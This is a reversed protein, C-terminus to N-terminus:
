EIMIKPELNLAGALTKLRTAAIEGVLHEHSKQVFLTLKKGGRKIRFADLNSAVGGSLAYGLRMAYGTAKALSRERINMLQNVTARSRNTSISKGYRSAVALAVFAREEHTIGVFPFRMVRALTHDVRYDPHELRGIESLLCAAVQLRERQPKNDPFIQDMWKALRFGDVGGFTVSWPMRDCVDILPDVKQDKSSLQDYLCGERVGNASFIIKRPQAIKIIRNMLLAAYPLVARRRNKIGDEELDAETMHSLDDTYYLAEEPSMEYHHLVHLPYNSHTIHLKALSRWAGGVVYFDKGKMRSLWKVNSLQADVFRAQEKVDGHQWEELRLPGIPLSVQKDTSGDKLSVLEVSGGGLDGMLGEAEPTGSLVGLGSFHAEEEGTLVKVKIECRKEIERVFDPGNEADRVAATAVIDIRVAGMSRAISVYRPIAELARNVGSEFLRGTENLDIGLGALIKENFISIPARVAGEYVVLRVSNSGIDIVAVPETSDISKM